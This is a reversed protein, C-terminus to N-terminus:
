RHWGFIVSCIVLAYFLLMTIIALLNLFKATTM